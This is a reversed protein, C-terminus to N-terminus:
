NYIYGTINAVNKDTIIKKVIQKEKEKVKTLEKLCNSDYILQYGVFHTADLRSDAM